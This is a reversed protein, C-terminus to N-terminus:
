KFRLESGWHAGPQHIRRSEQATGPLPKAHWVVVVAWGTYPLSTAERATYDVFIFRTPRIRVFDSVIGNLPGSVKTVNRAAVLRGWLPQATIWGSLNYNPSGSNGCGKAGGIPSSAAGNPASQSPLANAM